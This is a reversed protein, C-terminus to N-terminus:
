FLIYRAAALNDIYKQRAAASIYRFGTFRYNLIKYVPLRVHFNETGPCPSDHRSAAFAVPSQALIFKLYGLTPSRQDALAWAEPNEVL